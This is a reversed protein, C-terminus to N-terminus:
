IGNGDILWVQPVLKPQCECLIHYEKVLFEIERFALFGAIYQNVIEIRSNHQYVIDLQSNANLVVCTVCGLSPNRKDYSIDMGGILQLSEIDHAWHETDTAIVKKSLETQLEIYNDITQQMQQDSTDSSECM